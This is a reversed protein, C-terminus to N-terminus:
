GIKEILPWWRGGPLNDVRNPRVVTSFKLSASARESSTRHQALPSAFRGDSLLVYM